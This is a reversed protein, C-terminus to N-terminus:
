SCNVNNKLEIIQSLNQSSREYAHVHPSDRNIAIVRVHGLWYDMLVEAELLPQVLRSVSSHSVGVARAIGSVNDEGVAFLHMLIRQQIPSQLMLNFHEDFRKRTM